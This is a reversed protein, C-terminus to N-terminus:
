NQEGKQEVTQNKHSSIYQPTNSYKAVAGMLLCGAIIALGIMLANKIKQKRQLRVPM